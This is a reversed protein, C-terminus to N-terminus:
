NITKWGNITKHRLRTGDSYMTGIEMDELEEITSSAKMRIPANNYKKYKLISEIKIDKLDKVILELTSIRNLLISVNELKEINCIPKISKEIHKIKNILSETNNSDKILNLIDKITNSLENIGKEFEERTPYPIM